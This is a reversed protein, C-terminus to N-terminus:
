FATFEEDVVATFNLQIWNDSSRSSVEFSSDSLIANDAIGAIFGGGLQIIQRRLYQYSM